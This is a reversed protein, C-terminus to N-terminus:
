EKAHTIRVTATSGRDAQAINSGIANQIHQKGGPQTSLKDLLDQAAQRIDLDQDARAALVEEKLMEKRGASEPKTELGEISKILDSEGGFKKKLTIKLAEYADVIVKKGTDTIGGTVGAAIAAIIATTIPDM